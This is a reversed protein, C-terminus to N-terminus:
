VANAILVFGFLADQGPGALLIIVLMSGLLANFRTFVNARVIQGVSRSSAAPVVNVRGARVREQVEADTLGQEVEVM